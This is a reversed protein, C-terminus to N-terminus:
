TASGDCLPRLLLGNPCIEGLSSHAHCLRRMPGGLVMVLGSRMVVSGGMMMVLGRVVMVESLVFLGLIVRLRSVFMALKGVLVRSRGMLVRVLLTVEQAQSHDGDPPGKKIRLFLRGAATRKPASGM